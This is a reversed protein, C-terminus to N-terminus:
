SDVRMDLLQTRACGAHVRAKQLRDKVLLRSTELLDLQEVLEDQKEVTPFPLEMKNITAISLEARTSGVVMSSTYHRYWSSKYLHYFFRRRIMADNIRLRALQRSINGRFHAPVIAIEGITAKVSILIDDPEVRSRSFSAEIETSTQHIGSEFGGNLDNITVTPIGNPDFEGWQVIGYCIPADPVVMKEMTSCKWSKPKWERPKIGVADCQSFLRASNSDYLQQTLTWLKMLCDVQFQTAQLVEAIRRQEEPPPLAFEFSALDRWRV